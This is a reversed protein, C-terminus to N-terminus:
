KLMRMQGNGTIANLELQTATEIICIIKGTAPEVLFIKNVPYNGAGALENLEKDLRASFVVDTEEITQRVVNTKM